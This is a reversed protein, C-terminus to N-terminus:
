GVEDFQMPLNVLISVGWIAAQKQAEVFLRHAMSVTLCEVKVSSVGARGKVAEWFDHAVKQVGVGREGMTRFVQKKISEVEGRLQQRKALDRDAMDQTLQELQAAHVATAHIAAESKAAAGTAIAEVASTKGTLTAMTQAMMMLIQQNVDPSPAIAVEVGPAIYAGTQRINPLVESTIWKRFAKAEPRRSRLILTYLGSENVIVVEQRGAGVTSVVHAGKEDADLRAVSRNVDVLALVNCVDRAVWWPEGNLVVMRVDSGEFNFPTIQTDM